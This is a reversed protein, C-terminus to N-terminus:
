TQGALIMKLAEDQPAHLKDIEIGSWHDQRMWEPVAEHVTLATSAERIQEASEARVFWWLGGTGYDYSVLFRGEPIRYTM